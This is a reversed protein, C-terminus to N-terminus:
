QALTMKHAYRTWEHFDVSNGREVIATAVRLPNCVYGALLEHMARDASVPRGADRLVFALGRLAHPREADDSKASALLAAYAKIAEDLRGLRHLMLAAMTASHSNPAASFARCYLQLAGELDGTAIACLGAQHLVARNQPDLSLCIRYHELAQTAELSRMYSNALLLRAELSRPLRRVLDTLVSRTEEQNYEILKRLDGSLSSM